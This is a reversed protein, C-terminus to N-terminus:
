VHAQNLESLSTVNAFDAHNPDTSIETM